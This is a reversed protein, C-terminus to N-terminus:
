VEATLRKKLHLIISYTDGATHGVTTFFVDGTKGTGSNNRVGGPFLERFDLYGTQNAPVLWAVTDTTADWEIRVAMGDTSFWIGLLDVEACAPTLASVDVKNVDSEGDGGSINDFKVTLHSKDEHLIQTSVADAAM